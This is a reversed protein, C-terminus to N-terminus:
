YVEDVPRRRRAGGAVYDAATKRGAKVASARVPGEFWSGSPSWKEKYKWGRGMCSACVRPLMNATAHIGTGLCRRCKARGLAAQRM